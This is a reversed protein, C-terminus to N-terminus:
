FQTERKNAQYQWKEIYDSYHWISTLNFLPFAAKELKKGLALIEQALVIFVVPLFTHVQM